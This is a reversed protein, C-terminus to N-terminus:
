ASVINGQPAEARAPKPQARQEHTLWAIHLGFLTFVSIVMTLYLTEGLTMPDRRNTGACIVM